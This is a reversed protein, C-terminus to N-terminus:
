ILNLCYLVLLALEFSFSALAKTKFKYTKGRDETLDMAFGLCDYFYLSEHFQKAASLASKSLETNTSSAFAEPGAPFSKEEAMLNFFKYIILGVLLVLLVGSTIM